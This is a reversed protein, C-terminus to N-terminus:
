DRRRRCRLRRDCGAFRRVWDERPVCHATTTAAHTGTAARLGDRWMEPILSDAFSAVARVNPASGILSPVDPDADGHCFLFEVDPHSEPRLARLMGPLNGSAHQVGVIVSLKM